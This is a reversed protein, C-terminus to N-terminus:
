MIAGKQNLSTQAVMYAVQLQFRSVKFIALICIGVLSSILFASTLSCFHAPQDATDKNNAYSM